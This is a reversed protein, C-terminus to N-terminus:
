GPTSKIQKTVLRCTLVLCYKCNPLYFGNVLFIYVNQFERSNGQLINLAHCKHSLRLERVQQSRRVQNGGSVLCTQRVSQKLM